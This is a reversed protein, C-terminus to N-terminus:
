SRGHDQHVVHCAYRPHQVLFFFVITLWQLNLAGRQVFRCEPSHHTVQLKGTGQLWDCTERGFGDGGQDAPIGAVAIGQSASQVGEAKQGVEAGHFEVAEGIAEGLHQVYGGGPALLPAFLRLRAHLFVKPRIPLGELGGPKGQQSANFDRTDVSLRHMSVAAGMQACEARDLVRRDPHCRETTCEEVHQPSRLQASAHLMDNGSIALM